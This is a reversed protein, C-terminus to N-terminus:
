LGHIGPPVFRLYNPVVNRQTYSGDTLDKPHQYIRGLAKEIEREEGM